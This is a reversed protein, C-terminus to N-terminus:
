SLVLRRRFSPDTDPFDTRTHAGRSEERATAAAVLASGVTVLNGVEPDDLPVTQLSADVDALSTATRLVGAGETMARQVRERAKHPDETADVGAPLSLSIATGAICDESDDCELVARMAGTPEPGSKGRAIAEIVRPGFM